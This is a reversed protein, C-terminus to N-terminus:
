CNAPTPTCAPPLTPHTPDPTRAWLAPAARVLMMRWQEIQRKSRRLLPRAADPDSAATHSRDERAPWPTRANGRAHMCAAQRLRVCRGGGRVIGLCAPARVAGSTRVGARCGGGNGGNKM